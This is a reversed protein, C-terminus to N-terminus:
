QGKSATEASCVWELSDARCRFLKGSRDLRVMVMQVPYLATPRPMTEVAGFRDGMMWRDTDPSLQVRDGRKLM